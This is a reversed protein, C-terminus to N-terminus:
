NNLAEVDVTEGAPPRAVQVDANWEGLRLEFEGDGTDDPRLLLPYPSGSAAVYLLGGSTPDEDRLGVTPVGGLPIGDVRSLTGKPFLLAEFLTDMDLLDRLSRFTADGVAVKVFRGDAERARDPGLVQTLTAQDARFYLDRRTRVLDIRGGTTTISGRGDGGDRLRLDLTTRRGGRSIDGMVHVSRAAHAAARAAALVQDAPLEALDVTRKQTSSSIADPTGSGGCGATALAGVALLVVGM